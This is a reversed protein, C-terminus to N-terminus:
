NGKYNPGDRVDGHSGLGSIQKVNLIGRPHIGNHRTCLYITKLVGADDVVRECCGLPASRKKRKTRCGCALEPASTTCKCPQTVLSDCQSCGSITTLKGAANITVVTSRKVEIVDASGCLQCTVCFTALDISVGHQKTKGDQTYRSRVSLCNCCMLMSGSGPFVATNMRQELAVLYIYLIAHDRRNLHRIARSIGKTPLMLTRQVQRIGDISMGMEKLIDGSIKATRILRIAKRQLPIADEVEKCVSPPIRRRVSLAKYLMALAARSRRRTEPLRHKATHVLSRRKGTQRRLRLGYDCVNRTSTVYETWGSLRRLIHALARHEISWAIALEAAMHYLQRSALGRTVFSLLTGEQVAKYLLIRQSPPAIVTAAKYAGLYGCCLMVTVASPTNSSERLAKELQISIYRISTPAPLGKRLLAANVSLVDSRQRIGLDDSWAAEIASMREEYGLTEETWIDCLRRQEPARGHRYVSFVSEFPRLILHMHSDMVVGVMYLTMPPLTEFKEQLECLVSWICELRVRVPGDSRRIMGPFMRELVGDEEYMEFFRAFTGFAAHAKEAGLIM